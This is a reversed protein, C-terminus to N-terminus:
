GKCFGTCTMFAVPTGLEDRISIEATVVTRGEKIPKAEAILANGKAVGLFQINSSLSVAGYKNRNALLAFTFDGLTFIAGGMVAGDANRHADSLPLRCVVRNEEVADTLIGVTKTAFTDKDFYSLLEESNM